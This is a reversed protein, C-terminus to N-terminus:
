KILEKIKKLPLGSEQAIKKLDEYEARKSIIEGNVYGTKFTVEYEKGNIEFTRKEFERKAIGRHINPTIRIGLSGTEKFIADILRERNKRPSIVKLLSGQRNKKMIIPAISVDSAGEDQLRDFLYGIEEGTLHDLNTEIVDIEDSEVIDKSEIIRLVNPHDFDKKGAGYGTKKPNTLPIFDKVEDCLEAYIACGTPTALESDVPGGIMKFGKLIEVVAPAPVPITGHATKVRGGGVAIPLGIIKDDDLNLCYYAYISGIVDAVADSAGVEHFHVQNLPKGHVKSEAIAIREFVNISTEKVKEDLDLNKIKEIFDAYSISDKQELMEVNCYTSDIGQKTIKKFTVEVKGFEKASKEMIEKLDDANAGLDVLAGIIMNGAIGSSQPDIIITM